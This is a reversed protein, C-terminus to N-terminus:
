YVDIDGSGNISKILNNPEGILSIEGSGNITAMCNNKVKARIDGSGNISLNANSVQGREVSVDGSGAILVQLNEINAKSQVDGSGQISINFKKLHLDGLHLSGSGKISCGSLSPTQIELRLGSSHNSQIFINNHNIVTFQSGGTSELLLKGSVVSSDLNEIQSKTGIVKVKQTKAYTVYVDVSSSIIIQDFTDLELFKEEKKDGESVTSDKKDHIYRKGNIIIVDDDTTIVEGNITVVNNSGNNQTITGYNDGWVFDDAQVPSLALLPFAFKLLCPKISSFTNTM